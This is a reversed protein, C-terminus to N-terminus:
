RSKLREKIKFLFNLADLPTLKNIDIEEIERLIENKANTHFLNLQSSSERKESKSLRPRGIDDFETEMLNKLIEQARRIVSDPIGALKAVQIGYSLSTGGSMLKYLFIIENNFEKVAVSFNRIRPKTLALDTLEHYHTAFITRACIRDHIEEAIAWAISIGDFTSTGRGVEDLLILSKKTAKKLITGVEMMEVMFTSLGRTLFDSAGVRTFIRDVIGIKASTAPVFSGIQALLVIQATMRMLTSKGAMNPGTVIMVQIDETNLHIDNPVYRNYGILKSLVPHRANSLDIINENTIEPRVYNEELSILALSILADLEALGIATQKIRDTEKSIEELTNMFIDLELAKRKEDSTLVKEELTKLEETIFRESNVMTQKRIYDKPVLHLNPKTIEIYYGFVKNYRVKLSNIGTRTRERDEISAIISKLDKSIRVLEDLENSYGTKIIGGEDITTPPDDVIRRDIIEFVDSLLDIKKNIHSVLESHMQSIIEKIKAVPRISNKLAILDKPNAHRYGIKSSLREIDAIEKMFGSLESLRITDERLEDIADYRKNIEVIDVLPYQLWRRLMRSGMASSTKDIAWFLSGHKKQDLSNVFIELNRKCTEDLYLYKKEDVLIPEKILAIQRKQLTEVYNIIIKIAGIVGENLQANFETNCSREVLKDDAISYSIREKEFVRILDRAKSSSYILIERPEMLRIREVVDVIDLLEAVFLDGTSPDLFAASYTDREHYIACILNFKDADLTDSDLVMGPTVIRTVERKVIGKALRPDEVQDCIAVKHGMDLLKNIYYKASHHPVGCMPVKEDGRSRSTLALNLLKSVNIADEFFMEYFDGLRFFLICDPYQSKIQLYQHMMPTLASEQVMDKNNIM